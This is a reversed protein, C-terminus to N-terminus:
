KVILIIVGVIIGIMLIGIRNNWNQKLLEEFSYRKRLFIWRISAGLKPIYGKTVEQFFTTIFDDM